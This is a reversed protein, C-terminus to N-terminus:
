KKKDLLTIGGDDDMITLEDDADLTGTLPKVTKNNPTITITNEGTIKWVGANTENKLFSVTTVNVVGTVYFRYTVKGGGGSDMEWTGVIKSRLVLAAKPDKKPEDPDPDKKPDPIPKPEEVILRPQAAEKAIAFNTEWINVSGDASTAALRRGDRSMAIGIVRDFEGKLTHLVNGSNADFLKITMDWSASAMLRGNSSIAVSSVRNEHSRMIWRCDGRDMYWSGVFMDTSGSALMMGDTSIALSTVRNSHGKLTVPSKGTRVLWLKTMGVSNGAALWKGDASLAVSSVPAKDGKLIEIQKVPQTEWLKVIGDSGAFAFRKGDDSIAVSPSYAAINEVLTFKDANWVKIQNDNGASVVWKGDGSVAVSEVAGTHGKLEGRKKGTIADWVLIMSDRGSTVLRKGDASLAACTLGAGANWTLPKDSIERNPEPPKVVMPDPKVPDMKPKPTVSTTERTFVLTWPGNLSPPRPGGPRPLAIDLRDASLSYMGQSVLGVYSQSGPPQNGGGLGTMEAITFDIGAPSTNTRLRYTGKWIPSDFPSVPGNGKVNPPVNGKFNPPMNGRFNPPTFTLNNGDFELRAQTRPDAWSGQLKKVQEVESETPPVEIKTKKPIIPDKKIVVPSEKDKFQKSPDPTVPEPIPTPTPTPILTPTSIPTPITKPNPDNLAIPEIEKEQQRAVQNSKRHMGAAFFGIVLLAIGLVGLAIGLRIRKKPDLENRGGRNGEERRSATAIPAFGARSKRQPETTTRPTVQEGTLTRHVTGVQEITLPLADGAAVIDNLHPVDKLDQKAALVLRGTLARLDDSGERWLNLLLKSNSPNEFDAQTFLLNDGSSYKDWLNKGKELVAQLATYIVLHSFRDVEPGYYNTALRKPHQFDRHGKEGSPLGALTPLYMGDYDVLRLSVKGEVLGPVLMVNGHQLDAHTVDTERLRQAVKVWMGLLGEILHPQDIRQGVFQNLTQGEVWDMKLIPYWKGEIRIGQELYDIGVMFPLDVQKFRASIAHYRRQREPSPGTFCKIAWRRGDNAVMEYVIGFQGSIGHPLGLADTKAESSQLDPDSFALRPNQVAEQFENAQPWAM